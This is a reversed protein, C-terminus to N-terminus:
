WSKRLRATVIKTDSEPYQCNTLWSLNLSFDIAKRKPKMQLM